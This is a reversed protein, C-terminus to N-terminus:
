IFPQYYQLEAFLLEINEKQHVHVLLYSNCINPTCAYKALRPTVFRLLAVTKSVSVM